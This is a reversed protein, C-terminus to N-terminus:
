RYFRKSDNIKKDLEDILESSETLKPLSCIQKIDKKLRSYYEPKDFKKSARLHEIEAMIRDQGINSIAYLQLQKMFDKPSNMNSFNFNFSNIKNISQYESHWRDFLSIYFREDSLMEAKVESVNFQKPLRSLFRLEYRLVNQCSWVEPIDLRKYKSEAIKNYFLKTRLSNSYYLSKEQTLRNYHHSDGLYIYYSEPKHNMLFNESFDIRKVISENMPLHLEDSLQEIARKSDSRTLTHFNDPLFYKALSGKLSVKQGSLYVKMNKLNAIIYEQGDIKKHETIATLNGLIRSFDNANIKEIPLSLNITDYM